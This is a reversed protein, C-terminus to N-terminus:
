QIGSSIVNIIWYKRDLKKMEIIEIISTSMEFTGKMWDVKKRRVNLWQIKFNYTGIIFVCNKVNEMSQQNSNRLLVFIICDWRMTNCPPVNIKTIFMRLSYFMHLVITSFQTSNGPIRCMFHTYISTCGCIKWKSVMVILSLIM